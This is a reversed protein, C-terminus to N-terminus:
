DLIKYKVRVQKKYFCFCIIGKYQKDKILSIYNNEKIQELGNNLLTDIERKSKAHKVEIIYSYDLSDYSILSIDYRGQGAERNSRVEGIGILALMGTLINHYNNENANKPFDHYSYTQEFFNNTIKELNNLKGDRIAERFAQYYKKNKFFGNGTIDPLFQLVEKNVIKAEKTKSNYNLYGSAIMFDFLKTSDNLSELVLQSYSIDKLQVPNGKALEIYKQKISLPADLLLDNIIKTSSTKTWFFDLEKKNLFNLISWPNYIEKDGFHYGDYYEKIAKQNPELNYYKLAENVEDQTFGFSDAFDKNEYDYVIFNNLGSFISAQSIKTIGTLLAKELYNNSKLASSYFTKLFELAEKHFGRQLANLLPAEYEDILIIVKKNYYESYIRSITFLSNALAVKEGQKIRSIMDKTTDQLEINLLNIKEILLIIKDKISLLMEDFNTGDIDKLYIDLVPYTGQNKFFSSKEIYLDKFLKQNEESNEIDYFYKLSSMFLTKGFRRPRTFLFVKRSTSFQEILEIAKTKDVYYSNSEILEKFDETGLPIYKM